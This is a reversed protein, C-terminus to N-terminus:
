GFFEGCHLNEATIRSLLLALEEERGKKKPVIIIRDDSQSLEVISGDGLQLGRAVSAPIRIGLSNGWKKVIIEM